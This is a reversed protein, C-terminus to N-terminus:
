DDLLTKRIRTLTQRSVGLYTCLDSVSIRHVLHTNQAMFKRYRTEADDLLQRELRTLIKIHERELILRVFHELEPYEGVVKTLHDYPLLIM